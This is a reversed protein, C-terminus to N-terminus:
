ERRSIKGTITLNLASVIRIESPVKYTALKSRLSRKIYLLDVETEPCLPVVDAMLVGGFLDHPVTYVHAAKVDEFELLREEIEEPFVKHGAINLATSTRGCFRYAGTSDKCVVDGTTFWGDATINEASQYPELYCNFFGPGRLYLLGSSGDDVARGAEDRVSVEIRPLPDGLLCPSIGSLRLNVFPLGTEINGLLQVIPAGTRESFRSATSAVLPMSTSMAFRLSHNSPIAGTLLDIQFPAAYITTVGVTTLLEAQNTPNSSESLVLTSGETLFLFLSVIYHYPLSLLLLIIDERSILRIERVAEVREFAREQSLCVGKAKGTTGSSYRIFGGEALERPAARPRSRRVIASASCTSKLGSLRIRSSDNKNPILVYSPSVIEIIKEMEAEPLDAAVPLVVVKSLTCGILAVVFDISSGGILCVVDGQKVGAEELTKCYESAGAVLEGYRLVTDGQMLCPKSPVLECVERIKEILSM